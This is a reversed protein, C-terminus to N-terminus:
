KCWVTCSVQISAHRVWRWVWRLASSSGRSWQWSVGWLQDTGLGFGSDGGWRGESNKTSYDTHFWLHVLSFVDRCVTLLMMDPTCKRKIFLLVSGSLNVINLRHLCPVSFQLCTTNNPTILCNWTNNSDSIQSEEQWKPNSKNCAIPCNTFVSVVKQVKGGYSKRLYISNFTIRDM